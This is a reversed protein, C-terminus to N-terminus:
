KFFIDTKTELLIIQASQVKINSSPGLIDWILVKLKAKEEEKKAYKTRWRFLIPVNCRSM